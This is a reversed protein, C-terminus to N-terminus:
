RSDGAQAHPTNINGAPYFNEVCTCAVNCLIISTKSNFMVLRNSCRCCTNCSWCVCFSGIIRLLNRKEGIAMTLLMFKMNWYQLALAITNSQHLKLSMFGDCSSVHDNAWQVLNESQNEREWGDDYKRTVPWYYRLDLGGGHQILYSITTSTTYMEWDRWGQGTRGWAPWAGSLLLPRAAIAGINCFERGPWPPAPFMLSRPLSPPGGCM